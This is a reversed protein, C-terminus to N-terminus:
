STHYALWRHGSFYPEGTLCCVHGTAPLGCERDVERRIFALCEGPPLTGGGDWRPIRFTARHKEQESITEGHGLNSHHRPDGPAKDILPCPAIQLVPDLPQSICSTTPLPMGQRPSFRLRLTLAASKGM